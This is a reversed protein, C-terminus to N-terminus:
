LSDMWQDLDKLSGIKTITHNEVEKKGQLAEVTDLFKLSKYNKLTM